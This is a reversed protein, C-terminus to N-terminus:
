AKIEVAVGYWFTGGSGGPSYTTPATVPGFTDNGGAASGSTANNHGVRNANTNLTSTISRAGGFYAVWSKGSTDQLSWGASPISVSGSSGSAAPSVNGIPSANVGRYCHVVTDTANTFTGITESSSTAVKYALLFANTNGGTTAISTWGSPLTPATASGDRYAFALLLDGAAHGAPASPASDASSASVFQIGAPTVTPPPQINTPITSQGDRAWVQSWTMNDLLGADRKAAVYNMQATFESTDSEVGGGGPVIGHTYFEVTLGLLIVRDIMATFQAYTLSHLANGYTFMGRDGLGFRTYMGGDARTTRMTRMGLTDRYYVPAKMTYFELSEDVFYMPKTQAPIAVSVQVQTPSIVSTITTKPSDPVNYGTVRMGVQPTLGAPYATAGAINLVNSGDSTVATALIRNSPLNGPNPFDEIQGGTWCGHENGRTLGNAVVYDKGRQWSAGALAMTGYSATLDDNDTSDLMVDCGDAYMEILKPLNLASPNSSTTRVNNIGFVLGLSKMLPYAFTYQTIKNDDFSFIVTPRGGAKGLLADFKVAKAYPIQANNTVKVGVTGGGPTSLTADESVHLAGWLKGIAVPTPTEYVTGFSLGSQDAGLKRLTVSVGGPHGADMGLDGLAVITGLTSTDYSGIDAKTATALNTGTAAVQLRNTGFAPSDTALSLTAGISAAWGTLSEFNELLVPPPLVVGYAKSAVPQGGSIGRVILRYGEDAAQAVYTTSTAGAILTEAYPSALGRRYWQIGTWAANLTYTQGTSGDKSATVFGYTLPDLVVPPTGGGGAGKNAATTMLSIGIGIM